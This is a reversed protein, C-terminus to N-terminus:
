LVVGNSKPHQMAQISIQSPSDASIRCVECHRLSVGCSIDRGALPYVTVVVRHACASHYPEGLAIASTVVVRLSHLGRMVGSEKITPPIYCVSYMCAHEGVVLYAFQEGSASYLKHYKSTGYYHCRRLLGWAAHAHVCVLPCVRFIRPQEDCYPKVWRIQVSPCNIIIGPFSELIQFGM